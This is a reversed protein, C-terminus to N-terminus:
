QALADLAMAAAERVAQSEDAGDTIGELVGVSAGDKSLGQIALIRLDDCVSGDQAFSRLAQLAAADTTWHLAKTAMQRMEWEESGSRALGLLVAAAGSCDDWIEHRAGGGLIGSSNRPIRASVLYLASERLKPPAGSDSLVACALSYAAESKEQCIAALAACRLEVSNSSDNTIGTLVEATSADAANKGLARAAARRIPESDTLDLAVGTVADLVAGGELYSSAVAVARMRLHYLHVEGVLLHGQRWIDEEDQALKASVLTRLVDTYAADQRGQLANLVEMRVSVGEASNALIGTLVQVGDSDADKALVGIAACRVFSSDGSDGCVAWLANRLEEADFGTRGATHIAFARMVAAESKDRVLNSLTGCAMQDSPAALCLNRISAMRVSEVDARDTALVGYFPAEDANLAQLTGLAAVRLQRAETKDQAVDKLISVTSDEDEQGEAEALSVGFTSLAALGILTVVVSKFISTRM